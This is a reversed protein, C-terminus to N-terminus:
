TGQEVGSNLTRRTAKLVRDVVESLGGEVMAGAAQRHGGGGFTTALTAVDVGGRSRWSVKVSGQKQEIFILTVLAGEVTTLLNILDADDEGPYGSRKRDELTMTTWILGDDRKLKTLAHGWYRVANFKHELLTREYVSTLPPNHELLRAAVQLTHPRVNETRFGITDTVIGTLLNTAVDVTVPMDFDMLLDYLIECTAAAETDVINIEAFHTNTPHHDINLHPQRPLKEPSVGLRELDSCDVAILVDGDPWLSSQVADAGPLFRFRSPVGDALIPTARKGNAELSGALALVSGVADGDPRTHAIILINTARDILARARAVEDRV